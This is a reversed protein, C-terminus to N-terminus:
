GEQEETVIGLLNSGIGDKIEANELFDSEVNELDLLFDLEPDKDSIEKNDNNSIKEIYSSQKINLYKLIDNNINGKYSLSEAAKVALKLHKQVTDQPLDSKIFKKTLYKVMSIKGEFISFVLPSTQMESFDCVEIGFVDIVMKLFNLHNNKIAVHIAMIDKQTVSFNPNAILKQLMDLNGSDAIKLFFLSNLGQLDCNNKAVFYEFVKFNGSAISKIFAEAHRINGSELTKNFFEDLIKIQEVRGKVILHMFFEDLFIRDINAGSSLLFKLSNKSEANITRVILEDNEVGLNHKKNNYLYKFVNLNDNQVAIDMCEKITKNKYILSEENDYNKAIYKILKKENNDLLLKAITYAKNELAFSIARDLNEPDEEFSLLTLSDSISSNEETASATEETISSDEETVYGSEETELDGEEIIFRSKELVFGAEVTELVEEENLEIDDFKEFFSMVELNQCNEAYQIPSFKHIEAWKKAGYFENIDTRLAPICTKTLFKIIDLKNCSVATYIAAKGNINTALRPDVGYINVLYKMIELRNYITCLNITSHHTEYNIDHMYFNPDAHYDEVLIKVVTLNDKFIAHYLLAQNYKNSIIIKKEDIPLDILFNAVNIDSNIIYNKLKKFITNSTM